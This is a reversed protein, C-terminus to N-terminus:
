PNMMGGWNDYDALIWKNGNKEMRANAAGFNDYTSRWAYTVDFKLNGDEDEEAYGFCFHFGNLFSYDGANKKVYGQQYAETLSCRYVHIEKEEAFDEFLAWLAEQEEDNLPLNRTDVTLRSYKTFSVEATIEKFLTFCAYERGSKGCALLSVSLSLLLLLAALLALPRRKESHIFQLM